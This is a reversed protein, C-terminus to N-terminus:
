STANHGTPAKREKWNTYKHLWACLTVTIHANTCLTVTIDDNL